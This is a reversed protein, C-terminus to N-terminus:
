GPGDDTIAISLAPRGELLCECCNVVIAGEPPSVAIANELINRIVQEIRHRDVVCETSAAVIVERFPLAVGEHTQLVHLWSTRWIDALDYKGLSVRIPAAYNRVEEYLRQLEDLADQVRQTLSLQPRQGELDLSLMDLCARARQLANRSEHALGTIMQGIAALRESQVLQQQANELETVDHGISLVQTVCGHDDTLTRAWWAIRRPRGDRTRIANVHGAVEQGAIVRSFLERVQDTEDVPLFADFWSQGVAEELTYGCLEQMFRNFRVIRGEADLVLVIVQATDVLRELFDRQQRLEKQVRDRETIDNILWVEHHNFHYASLEAVIETGDRRRLPVVRSTPFEARRDALYVAYHAEGESPFLTLFWEEVSHLDEASYGTMRELTRNVVVHGTVSNVYAAGAPLHEIMFRIQQDREKLEHRAKKLDALRRLRTRLEDPDVPKLLYDAAGARLAALSSELDGYGTIILVAADPARERIQPLLEDASQDPLRRDLLIAFYDSWHDRDIAQAASDAVDVRYGDQRLIRTVSRRIGADDDVVLVALVPLSVSEDADPSVRVDASM